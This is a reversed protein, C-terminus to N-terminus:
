RWGRAAALIRRMCYHFLRYGELSRQKEDEISELKCVPLYGILVTAHSSPQRRVAKDINGITMYVPWATKDGRFQSLKTKDTSIIVPVITAGDPLLM